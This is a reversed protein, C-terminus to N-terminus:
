CTKKDVKYLKQTTQKQKPKKEENKHQTIVKQM